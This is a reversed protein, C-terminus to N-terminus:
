MAKRSYSTRTTTRIVEQGNSSTAICTKILVTSGQGVDNFVTEIWATILHDMKDNKLQARKMSLFDVHRKRAKRPSIWIDPSLILMYNGDVQKIRIQLSHSWIPTIEEEIGEHNTIITKSLQGGLQGVSNRLKVLNKSAFHDKGIIIMNKRPLLEEKDAISRCLLEELASHLSKHNKLDNIEGTLDYTEIKIIDPFSTKIDSVNGWAHVGEDIWCIVKEKALKRIDKLGKWDLKTKTHITLCEKPLNALPVSNFRFLPGKTSQKPIPISVMRDSTREVKDELQPSKSPLNRWLRTMLSDFNDIEVINADIGKSKAREILHNVNPHVSTKKLTTWFLGHPFANTVDLSENMLDMISKDRGSYGVIITGFRSSSALFCKRIEEDVKLLHEELNALRKYQFDGHVKAYLPFEDNNLAGKCSDAGELHYSGLNGGCVHAYANEFVKDFNTTYVVKAIKEYMLAALARHGISLTIKKSDLVEAIYKRQEEQGKGFFLDFYFSYENEDYENPFGKSMCFEQVKNRIPQIQIDSNQIDQNEELCYFRKKLDWIIDNATPLGASASVGAGLFWSCKDVIPIIKRIFDTQSITM